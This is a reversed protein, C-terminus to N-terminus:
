VKNNQKKHLVEYVDKNTGFVPDCQHWFKQKNPNYKISMVILESNKFSSYRVKRYAFLEEKTKFVVVKGARQHYRNLDTWWIAYVTSKLKDLLKNRNLM